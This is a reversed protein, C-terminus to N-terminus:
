EGVVGEGMIQCAGFGQSSTLLVRGPQAAQVFDVDDWVACSRWRRGCHLSSREQHGPVVLIGGYVRGVKLRM